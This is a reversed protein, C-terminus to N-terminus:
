SMFYVPRESPFTTAGCGVSATDRGLVVGRSSGSMTMDGVYVVECDVQETAAFTPLFTV